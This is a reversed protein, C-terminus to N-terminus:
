QVLLRFFCLNTRDVTSNQLEVINDLGFVTSQKKALYDLFFFLFGRRSFHNRGVMMLRSRWDDVLLRRRWVLLSRRWRRRVVCRGRLWRVRLPGRLDVVRRRDRMRLGVRWGRWHVWLLRKLMAVIPWSWIWLKCRKRCVVSRGSRLHMGLRGNRMM